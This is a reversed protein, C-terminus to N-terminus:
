PVKNITNYITQSIVSGDAGKIKYSIGMQMVPQLGSIELFVTREDTQKASKIELTDRGKKAPDSVSYDPSGYTEWWKYNWQEVGYNQEDGASAKDLASSFTIAIGDKKVHLAVPMNVTKGTYRVRQLSGDKVGSTQWGGGVGCVYLQGDRPNFRGRMIGSDFVLPFSVVGGQIQGGLDESLVLMLRAKGFSTHVYHDKLPGWKESSVWIQGGSSTDEAHPIWCLPRTYDKPMSAQHHQTTFGLFDGKKVLNIKSAPTWNGQNDSCVIENNPGTGVGNCERLGSAVVEFKKGDKSVKIICGTDPYNLPAANGCRAYIFNGDTDTQLDFNMFNYAYHIAGDNNFNEYFDAEGDGNLDHLRTIQDRGLAYVVGDVIKLGLPDYLGTAFRTWTLKGLSDDIGSVIFVDGNYTCVAAHGDAFFDIGTMRLWSNWPNNEPLTLTDVVYPQEGSGLKGSTEVPKWRAPGGTCLSKLDAPASFTKTAAAFAPLADAAGNWILIKFKAAAALAPFKLVIASKAIELAAEAPAGVLAAATVSSGDLQAIAGNMKGAAGEVDCVRLTMPVSSNEIELTRTFVSVGGSTEYAPSELVKAAGVMYSLVVREGHLYHGLFKAWDAPLPGLKQARPDTFDGNKAWGPGETEFALAGGPTCNDTGKHNTLMTGHTDLFDDTWAAALSLTETDYCVAAKEGTRVVLGRMALVDPKDAKKTKDAPKLKARLLSTALFPGYDMKATREPKVVEGGSTLACVLLAHLIAFVCKM